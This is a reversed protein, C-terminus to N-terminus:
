LADKMMWVFMWHIGSSRKEQVVNINLQQIRRNYCDAIVIENDNLFSVGDPLQFQGSNEGKGGIKRLCSGERDFVYVCHGNNDTLAMNGEKNIAIGFLGSLQDGQFFKLDLNGVVVLEREKVLTTFPCTPLKNGNIKM